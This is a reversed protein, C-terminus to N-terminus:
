AESSREGQRQGHGVLDALACAARLADGYTVYLPAFGLRLLSPPRHDVVVGRDRLRGQLEKAGDVRLSVQHGRDDGRPTVVTAAEPDVLRDVCDMFFGTLALGKTRVDVLDVHDWVDLAADLTLLSVIDPTGARLRDVGTAPTFEPAMAFPDAAGGWGTLPQDLSAHARHPVYAFSPAGPGGGLFKYTAGVALDVDLLDLELPLVGVSHSVDWLVLAGADHCLATLAAMDHLRGTRYDVHNLLVVGSRAGLSTGLQDPDVAVIGAGTLRAVAAAVYGDTPFTTADVLLQTRAVGTAEAARASRLAAVLLKFVNVSTSDAVVTQGRAAGLLPAIRDGVRTPAGWWGSGAPEDDWSAILGEGWQRRVVDQVRAPVTRLLAGLSNGDLYTVGEPLLFEERLGALPDAADLAAARAALESRDPM